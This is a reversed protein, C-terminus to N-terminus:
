NSLKSIDAVRNMLIELRVLLSLRNNRIAVDEAMVMVTDFFQDVPGRASSLAKLAGVYDGESLQSEVIPSLKLIEEFLQHEATESFHQSDVSLKPLPEAKRLINRIRKNAASLSPAEELLRFQQVAELRAPINDFRSPSTSLVSEIEEPTFHKERLLNRARDLIFVYLKEATDNAIVGIPFTAASQELLAPLEIPLAREM